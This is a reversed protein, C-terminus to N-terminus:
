HREDLNPRARRLRWVGVLHPRIIVVVAKSSHRRRKCAHSTYPRHCRQGHSTSSAATWTRWGDNDMAEWFSFSLRLFSSSFFIFLPDWESVYRMTLPSTCLQHPVITTGITHKWRDLFCWKRNRMVLKSQFSPHMSHVQARVNTIQDPTELFGLHSPGNRM